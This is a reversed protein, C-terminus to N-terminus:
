WQGCNHRKLQMEMVFVRGWLVTNQATKPGPFSGACFNSLKECTYAHLFRIVDATEFITSIPAPYTASHRTANVVFFLVRKPVRPRLGEPSKGM